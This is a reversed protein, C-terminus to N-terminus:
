DYLAWTVFFALTAYLLACIVDIVYHFRGYVTSVILGLALPLIFIFLSLNFWATMFLVIFGLGAHGSPFATGPTSGAALVRHVIKFFFGSSRVDTMKHYINRPGDVPIFGHTMFCSLLLFLIAFTCPYFFVPLQQQYFYLPVGYILLFFSLYCAHLVESFFRQGLKHQQHLGIVAPFYQHEFRIFADDHPQQGWVQTLLGTERHFLPLCFLPLWDLVLYSQGKVYLYSSILFCAMMVVNASLYVYRHKGLPHKSFFILASTIFLYVMVLGNLQLM